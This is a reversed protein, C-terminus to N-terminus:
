HNNPRRFHAVQLGFIAKTNQQFENLQRAVSNFAQLQRDDSYLESTPFETDTNTTHKATFSAPNSSAFPRRSVSIRTATVLLVCTITTHRDTFMRKMDPELCPGGM